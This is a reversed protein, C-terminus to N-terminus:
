ADQANDGGEEHDNSYKDLFPPLVAYGHRLLIEICDEPTVDLVELAEELSYLELLERVEEEFM